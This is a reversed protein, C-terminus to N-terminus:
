RAQASSRMLMRFEEEMAAQPAQRMAEPPGFGGGASGFPTSVRLAADFELQYGYEITEAEQGASSAPVEVDWRLTGKPREQQLYLADDSIPHTMEGLTVRVDSGEVPHPARDFVRVLAPRDKFNELRLRYRTTVENNAGLARESRDLLEREVRLQSDVGFGVTFRQGVAAVPIETRGVFAGDLYISAPGELLALSGDNLVEAERYVYGTLVPAAVFYFSSKLELRAIELMQLDSRSPLSMPEPLAYAVSLGEDRPAGDGARAPGRSAQLELIQLTNSAANMNWAADVSEQFTKAARQKRESQSIRARLGGVQGNYLEIQPTGASTLTVWFPGLTAGRSRLTPSATSLVLHVSEWDEGSMQRVTANYELEVAENEGTARVNYLPEWGAEKVLYSLSVTREGPQTVELSVVAERTARTTGSTLESLKRVLLAMQKGAEQRRQKLEFLDEAVKDRQAFVFTTLETVTKADLVGKAMEVRATAPVFQGLKDLYSTRQSLADELGKDRDEEKQLGAIQLEVARVEERPEESVARSRFLVARVQVGPEAGAFLSEPVVHQPLDEVVLEVAGAPLEATVLRQVLAQGRYLTVADIKGGAKVVEAGAQRAGLVLAAVMLTCCVQRRGM